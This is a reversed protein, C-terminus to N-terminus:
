VKATTLTGEPTTHLAHSQPRAKLSGVKCCGCGCSSGGRVGTRGGVGGSSDGGIGGGGGGGGSSGGVYVGLELGHIKFIDLTIAENQVLAVFTSTLFDFVLATAVAAAAVVGVDFAFALARAVDPTSGLDLVPVTNVGVRVGVSVSGITLDAL